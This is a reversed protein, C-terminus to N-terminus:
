WNWTVNSGIAGTVQSGNKLTVTTSQNTNTNTSSSTANPQTVTGNANLQRNVKTLLPDTPAGVDLDEERFQGVTGNVNVVTLPMSDRDGEATLHLHSSWTLGVDSSTLTRPMIGFGQEVDPIQRDRFQMYQVTIPPDFLFAHTTAMSARFTEQDIEQQFGLQLGLQILFGLAMLALTGMVALEAFAQGRRGRHNTPSM